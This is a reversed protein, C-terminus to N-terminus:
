LKFLKQTVSGKDTLIDVIYMGKQLNSISIKQRNIESVEFVIKGSIDTIKIKNININEPIQLWIDDTAPNPYFKVIENTTASVATATGSIDIDCSCQATRNNGDTVTWTVTHTGIPFQEGDLTSSNNYDNIVSEVTCNDTASTPDFETGSVTYYTEGAAITINQNGVCTIEPDIYDNVVANQTQHSINGAEDEFDWTIVTTGQETIPFVTTTTGTITGSVNDTATPPTPADVSCVGSLDSLSSADPNPAYVDNYKYYYIGDDYTGIYFYGNAFAPSAFFGVDITSGDARLMGNATFTGNGDNLFIYVNGVSNGVYLDDDGDGDLDAFTPSANNGVDINVGDAQVNGATSYNGGSYEVHIIEGDANGVFLDPNGYNDYFVSVSAYTGVNIKIAGGGEYLYGEGTFSGTGDNRYYTIYGDDDGVFMDLDGDNDKDAYAFDAYDRYSYYISSAAYQNHGNNTYNHIYYGTSQGFHLDKIGDGDTDALEPRIKSFEIFQANTMLGENTFNGSGDNLHVEIGGEDKGILIDDDGDEDVDYICPSDYATCQINAGSSQMKVGSAYTGGNKQYFYLYGASGAYMDLDGDQDIDSFQAKRPYSLDSGGALVTGDATFTGDTNIYKYLKDYGVYLVDIVGDEDEDVFVPSSYLGIDLDTGDAQLLGSSTFHNSGDNTYVQINGDTNGLYLDLDGDQDIDAFAPVITYLSTELFYGVTDYVNNGTNRYWAIDGYYNGVYLDAHGNGDLDAFTLTANTGVEIQVPNDSHCLKGIKTLDQGSVTLTALLILFFTIKIHKM